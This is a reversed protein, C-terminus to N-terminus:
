VRPRPVLSAHKSVQDPNARATFRRGASNATYTSPARPADVDYMNHCILFVAVTRYWPVLYLISSTHLNTIGVACARGTPYNGKFLTSFNNLTVHTYALTIGRSAVAM